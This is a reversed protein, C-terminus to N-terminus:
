PAVTTTEPAPPTTAPPLTPTTTPQDAPTPSLSADAAAAALPGWLASAEPCAAGGPLVVADVGGLDPADHPLDVPEGGALRVARATARADSGPWSVIGVRTM